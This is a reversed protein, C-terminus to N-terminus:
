VLGKNELEQAAMEFRDDANTRKSWEVLETIGDAFSVEPEFGLKNRIKDIDAFCHRVDGKRYKKTIMPKVTKGFVKALHSAVDIITVCRGSGVNFVEYNSSAKKMALLNAQVIDHVSVFDRSQLGDEYIVPPKGNKLRSMFIAAVGTYPNSLSQRPGYVNFYRLAVTPIGYARGVNLCMEEQNKKSIAYVSTPEAPKDERTPIPGAIKNCKPCHLEWLREKMQGENRISPYVIGCNSCHYAGEGYLSMSSAIVLKKVNHETNVMVDLLMATGTSNIDVYRQIQYM